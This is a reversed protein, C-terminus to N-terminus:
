GPLAATVAAQITTYCPAQGGCTPDTPSVYRTGTQAAVPSPTLFWGLAAVVVLLVGVGFFRRRSSM